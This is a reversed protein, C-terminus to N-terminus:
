IDEDSCQEQPEIDEQYDPAQPIYSKILNILLELYYKM